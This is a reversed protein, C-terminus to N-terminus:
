KLRIIDIDDMILPTDKKGGGFSYEGAKEDLTRLGEKIGDYDWTNLYIQTNTFHKGMGLVKSPINIIVKNEEPVTTIKPVIDLAHPLGNEDALSCSYFTTNWGNVFTAIDWKMGDPLTHNQLPMIDCGSDLWRGNFIEDNYSSAAVNPDNPNDPLDIYIQFSVHDFGNPPNWATSLSDKMKVHIQLQPGIGYVKVEKIDARGEFNAELPYNYAGELGKDDDLEDVQSGLEIIPYDIKFPEIDSLFVRGDSRKQFGVLYHNGNELQGIPINVDWKFDNDPFSSAAQELMGDVAITISNIKSGATGRAALVGKEQDFDYIKELDLYWQEKEKNSLRDLVPTKRLIKAEFPRMLTSITGDEGVYVPKDKGSM